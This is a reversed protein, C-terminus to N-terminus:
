QEMYMGYVRNLTLRPPGIFARTPPQMAYPFVHAHPPYPPGFIVHCKHVNGCYVGRIIAESLSMGHFTGGGVGVVMGVYTRLSRFVVM